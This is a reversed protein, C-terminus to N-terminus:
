DHIRALGDLAEDLQARAARRVMWGGLRALGRLQQRLQITVRSGEPPDSAVDIEIVSTRLVREFPSGDLQQHWRAHHPAHLEVIRYDARVVRGARTQMVQTFGDEDAAEVRTVRPWWRPLHHPDAIVAWVDEPPSSFSRSRITRPM